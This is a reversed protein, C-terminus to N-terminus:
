GGNETLKIFDQIPLPRSFYYGQLYDVGLRELLKVQQPTEVGEVLIKRGLQRIMRVNNELVILGLGSKEAGWLISKDIKIVDLDMSLIASLNSYGTGYDDMSFQFGEKKLDRIVRAFLKDDGAAVSETIEFNIRDKRVGYSEVISNIHEVFGKKMCQLVSLNVNIHHLHCKEIYGDRIFNCVQGLVFDDVDDILGLAETIPIFEDPYIMGLVNDHMRLLAEAGHLTKDLHYTPQFYVEFSGKELGKTVADEVARRRLLYDLDDEILIRKEEENRIPSDIMYLAEDASGIKDPTESMMIQATVPIPIDGVLFPETFREDITHILEMVEEMSKYYTVIVFCGPNPTYIRYRPVLTKLYDGIALYLRDSRESGTMKGLYSTDSLRVVTIYSHHRNLIAASLDMRLAARNYVGSAADIRDDENEVVMMVGTFGLCEILVEIRLDKFVLQLMVGVAVLVFSFLLVAKRKQSLVQWSYFMIIFTMVYYVAAALYIITEGWHRHFSGVADVKYVWHTIPNLLVLIETFVFLLSLRLTRMKNVRLSSGCVSGVYYFFMPCLATHTLFYIFRFDTHLREGMPSPYIATTSNVIGCLANVSLLVMIVLFLKNSVRDTRKQILTYIIDTICILLAAISFGLGLQLMDIM